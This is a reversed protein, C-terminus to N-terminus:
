CLVQKIYWKLDYSIIWSHSLPRCAFSAVDAGYRRGLQRRWTLLPLSYLQCFSLCQGYTRLTTRMKDSGMLQPRSWYISICTVFLIRKLPSYRFMPLPLRTTML